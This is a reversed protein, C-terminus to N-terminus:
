NLSFAGSCTTCGVFSKVDQNNQCCETIKTKLRLPYSNNNNHVEHDNVASPTPMNPSQLRNLQMKRKKAEPKSTPEVINRDTLDHEHFLNRKRFSKNTRNSIRSSTPSSVLSLEAITDHVVAELNEMDLSPRQVEGTISTTDEVGINNDSMILAERAEETVPIFETDSDGGLNQLDNENDNGVSALLAYLQEQNAKGSIDM